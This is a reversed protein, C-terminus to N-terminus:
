LGTSLSLQGGLRQPTRNAADKTTPDSDSTAPWRGPWASCSQAPTPTDPRSTQGPAGTRHSGIRATAKPQSRTSHRDHAWTSAPQSADGYIPLQRINTMPNDTM